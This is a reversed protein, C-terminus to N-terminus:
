GRFLNLSDDAFEVIMGVVDNQFFYGSCGGVEEEEILGLLEENEDKKRDSALGKRAPQQWSTQRWRRKASSPPPSEGRRSASSPVVPGSTGDRVAAGQLSSPAGQRRGAGGGPTGGRQVVVAGGSDDRVTGSNKSAAKQSVGTSTQATSSQPLEVAAGRNSRSRPHDQALLRGGFSVRIPTTSEERLLSEAHAILPDSGLSSRARRLPESYSKRTRPTHPQPFHRSTGQEAATNNPVENLHGSSSNTKGSLRPASDNRYHDQSEQQSLPFPQADSNSSCSHPLGVGSPAPSLPRNM